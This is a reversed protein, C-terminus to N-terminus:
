PRGLIQDTLRRAAEAPSLSREAAQELLKQGSEDGLATESEAAVVVCRACSGDASSPMGCQTCRVIPRECSGCFVATGVSQLPAVDRYM